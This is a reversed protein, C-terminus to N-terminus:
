NFGQRALKEGDMIDQLALIASVFSVIGTFIKRKKDLM